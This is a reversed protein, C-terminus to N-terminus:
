KLNPPPEGPAPQKRVPVPKKGGETKGMCYRVRTPSTHLKKALEDTSLSGNSEESAALVKDCSVSKAKAVCVRPAIATMALALIGAALTRTSM